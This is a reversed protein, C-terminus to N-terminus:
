EDVENLLNLNMVEYAKLELSDKAFERSFAEEMCKCFALYEEASDIRESVRVVGHRVRKVDGTGYGVAHFFYAYKKM